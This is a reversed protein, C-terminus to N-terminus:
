SGALETAILYLDAHVHQIRAVRGREVHFGVDTPTSTSIEIGEGGELEVSGRALFAMGTTSREILWGNQFAGQNAAKWWIPDSCPHRPAGRRNDIAAGSRRYTSAAGNM